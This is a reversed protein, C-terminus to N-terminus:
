KEKTFPTYQEDWCRKCIAVFGAARHKTHILDGTKHWTRCVPCQKPMLRNLHWQWQRLRWPQLVTGLVLGLLFALVISTFDPM